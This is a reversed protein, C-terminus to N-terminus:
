HLVKDPFESKQVKDCLLFVDDGGRVSGSTKDLRCVKLTGASPAESLSLYSYIYFLFTIISIELCMKTYM